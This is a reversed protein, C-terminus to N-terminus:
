NLPVKISILFDLSELAYKNIPKVAIKHGEISVLSSSNAKKLRAVPLSAFGRSPIFKLKKNYDINGALLSIPFFSIISIAIIIKSM